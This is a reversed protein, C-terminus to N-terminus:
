LGTISKWIKGNKIDRIVRADVGYIKALKMKPTTNDKLISLVENEKLKSRGNKVGKASRNRMVRDLVNDKHTGILLHSPNICKKNDCTHRIVFGKPIEGKYLRYIHRYIRDWLGNIIAVPYGNVDTTHSTCNWCGYEGIKYKIEKGKM